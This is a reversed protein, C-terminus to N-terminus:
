SAAKSQDRPNTRASKGKAKALLDWRFDSRRSPWIILCNTARFNRSEGRLSALEFLVSQRRRWNDSAWAAVAQGDSREARETESPQERMSLSSHTALSWSLKGFEITQSSGLATPPQLQSDMVAVTSPRFCCCCVTMLSPSPFHIILM